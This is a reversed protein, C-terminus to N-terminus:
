LEVVSDRLATEPRFEAFEIVCPAATSMAVEAITWCFYEVKATHAKGRLPKAALRAKNNEDKNPAISDM